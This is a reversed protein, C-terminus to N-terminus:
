IWWIGSLHVIPFFQAGFKPYTFEDRDGACEGTGLGYESATERVGMGGALSWGSPHARASGCTPPAKGVAQLRLNTTVVWSM